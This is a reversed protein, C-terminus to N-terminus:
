SMQLVILQRAARLSQRTLRLFSGDSRLSGPQAVRCGSAGSYLRCAATAGYEPSCFGLGLESHCYGVTQSFELFFMDGHLQLADIAHVEVSVNGFEGVLRADGGEQAKVQAVAKSRGLLGHGHGIREDLGDSLKDGFLAQLQNSEFLALAFVLDHLGMQASEFLGLSDEENANSLFFQAHGAGGASGGSCAAGHGPDHVGGGDDVDEIEIAAVLVEAGEEDLEAGIEGIGGLEADITMLIELALQGLPADSKFGQVVSQKGASVEFFGLGDAIAQAGIFNIGEQALPQRAQRM